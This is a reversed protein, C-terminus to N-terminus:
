NNFKVKIKIRHFENGTGSHRLSGSQGIMLYQSAVLWVQESGQMRSGQPGLANPVGPIGMLWTQLQWHTEPKVPFGLVPHPLDIRNVM